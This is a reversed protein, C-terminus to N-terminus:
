SNGATAGTRRKRQAVFEDVLENLSAVEADLEEDRSPAEEAADDLAKRTVRGWQSPDGLELFWAAARWDPFREWGDIEGGEDLVPSGRM